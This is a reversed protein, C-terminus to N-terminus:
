NIMVWDYPPKGLDKPPLGLADRIAKDLLYDSLTYDKGWRKSAELLRNIALDRKAEIESKEM